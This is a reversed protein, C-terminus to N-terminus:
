SLQSSCRSQLCLTLPEFGNNEVREGLAQPAGCPRARVSPLRCKVYQCLCCQLTKCDLLFLTGIGGAVIAPPFLYSQFYAREWGRLPIPRLLFVSFPPRHIGQSVCAIFSTVLQSLGRTPAFPRQDASRRIPCGPRSSAPWRANRPALAPFQFM